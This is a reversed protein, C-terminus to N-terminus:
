MLTVRDGAGSRLSSLRNECSVDKTECADGGLGDEGDGDAVHCVVLHDVESEAVALDDGRGQGVKLGDHLRM